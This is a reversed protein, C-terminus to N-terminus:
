AIPWIWKPKHFMKYYFGNPLMPVLVDNVAAIDFEVSPWVNQSEVVMGDEVRTRDALINPEKNVTVLSEHGQGFVDYAGRPRHYKFSRTLLTKGSAILASTISDSSFAKIRKGNYTFSLEKGLDPLDCYQHTTIRKAM